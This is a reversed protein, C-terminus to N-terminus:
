QPLPVVLNEDADQDTVVIAIVKGEAISLITSGHLPKPMRDSDVLKMANEILVFDPQELPVYRQNGECLLSQQHGINEQDLKGLRDQPWQESDLPMDPLHVRCVKDQVNSRFAIASADWTKGLCEFKVSGDVSVEPAKFLDTPGILTGDNLCLVWGLQQHSRKIGYFSTKWKLAAQQMNPLSKLDLRLAPGTPIATQWQLWEPQPEAHLAFSHGIAVDHGPPEPTAFEIGGMAMSAFTNAQLEFGTLGMNMKVGSSNWFVSNDRVLSQYDADISAFVRIWRSDPALGISHIRGVELGRYRIPAGNQLGKANDTQLVIELSSGPLQIAPASALGEFTSSPMDTRRSPDAAIYQGGFITELGAIGQINVQPKVVWFRTGQSAILKADERVSAKVVVRELDDSLHIDTVEGIIVGRHRIQDGVKLGEGNAFKIEINTGSQRNAAYISYSALSLAALVMVLLLIPFRSTSVKPKAIATPINSTTVESM